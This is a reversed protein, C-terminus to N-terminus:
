SSLIPNNKYFLTRIAILSICFSMVKAITNGLWFSHDSITSILLYTALTRVIIDTLNAYLYVKMKMCGRLLNENVIKLGGFLYALTSLQLFSKAFQFADQHEDIDIFIGILYDPIVFYCAIMVFAIITAYAAGAVGMDFLRIFVLDLLINIVSTILILATAISPYGLAILISRSLDYLFLGILGIMYVRYYAITMDSLYNPVQLIRIIPSAMILGLITIIAAGALTFIFVTRIGSRIAEADKAGKYKAFVVECGLELGGSLAILIM